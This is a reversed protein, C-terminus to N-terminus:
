RFENMIFSYDANKYAEELESYNVEVKTKVTKNGHALEKMYAKAMLDVTTPTKDKVYRSKLNDYKAKVISNEKKLMKIQNRANLLEIEMNNKLFMEM